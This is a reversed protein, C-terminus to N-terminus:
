STLSPLIRRGASRRQDDMDTDSMTFCIRQVTHPPSGQVRHAYAFLGTAAAGRVVCTLMPKM